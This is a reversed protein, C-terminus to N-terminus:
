RSESIVEFCEKVLHDDYSDLPELHNDDVWRVWPSSSDVAVILGVYSKRVARHVGAGSPLDYRILDGVKVSSRLNPSMM